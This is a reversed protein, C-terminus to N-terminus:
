RKKLINLEIAVLKKKEKKQFGNREISCVKILSGNNVKLCNGDLTKNVKNM